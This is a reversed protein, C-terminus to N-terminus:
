GGALVALTGKAQANSINALEGLLSFVVAM